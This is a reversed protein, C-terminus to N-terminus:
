NWQSNFYQWQRGNVDVVIYQLAPPAVLPPGAYDIYDPSGGGGGSNAGWIGNDTLTSQYNGFQDPTTIM